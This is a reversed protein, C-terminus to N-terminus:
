NKDYITPSLAKVNEMSGEVQRFLVQDTNHMAAAHECSITLAAKLKKIPLSM